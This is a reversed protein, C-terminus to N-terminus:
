PSSSSSSFSTCYGVTTSVIACGKSYVIVEVSVLNLSHYGSIGEDRMNMGGSGGLRVNEKELYEIRRKMKKAEEEHRANAAEAALARSTTRELNREVSLISSVVLPPNVRKSM